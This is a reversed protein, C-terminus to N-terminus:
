FYVHRKLTYTRELGAPLGYGKPIQVHIENAEIVTIRGEYARDIYDVNKIVYLGPLLRMRQEVAVATGTLPGGCEDQILRVTYGTQEVRQLEQLCSGKSYPHLDFDCTAMMLTMLVCLILLPSILVIGFVKSIRPLQLLPRLALFPVCLVCFGFAYNLGANSFRFWRTCGIGLVFAFALWLLNRIPHASSQPARQDM